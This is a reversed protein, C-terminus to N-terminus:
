KAVLVVGVLGEDHISEVDAVGSRGIGLAVELVGKAGQTKGVKGTLGLHHLVELDEGLGRGVAAFREVVREEVARRAQALGGQGVDDGVLQAYAELHGAAGNEVLRAVQGADEGRQLRAIHQEDVLDVAERGDHLFVEIGGHLVVADVDHDVATWRCAANLYVEVGEGENTCGGAAAQEGCGEAGAKADVHVKVVVIRLREGADHATRSADEVNGDLLLGCGLNGATAAARWTDGIGQQAADTVEGLHFAVAADVGADCAEGEFCEIDVAVSEVEDVAFDEEGDDLLEASPGDADSGDGGGDAFVSACELLDILGEEDLLSEDVAGGASADGCWEGILM